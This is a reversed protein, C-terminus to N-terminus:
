EGLIDIVLKGLRTLKVSHLGVNDTKLLGIEKLIRYNLKLTSIPIGTIKAIHKITTTISSEGDINKLILLQNSNIARVILLRLSENDVKSLKQHHVGIDM